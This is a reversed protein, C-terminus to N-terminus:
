KDMNKLFFLYSSLCLSLFFCKLNARKAIYFKGFVNYIKKSYEIKSSKDLSLLSLMISISLQDIKKFIGDNKNLNNYDRLKSFVILLDDLRKRKKSIDTDNTISGPRQVYNYAITDTVMIRNCVSLAIPTFLEDEHYIGEYFTIFNKELISRKYIYIWVNPVITHNKLFDCGTLISTSNYYNKKKPIITGLVDVLKFNFIICDLDYEVLKRLFISLINEELYDDSDLFYVYKGKAKKFGYNRASSLGGNEKKVFVFRSDSGVIDQAIKISKDKSGDDVIIFECSSCDQRLLSIMCKGIYKEVGYVPVVVSLLM